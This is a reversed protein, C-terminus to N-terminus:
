SSATEKGEDADGNNLKACADKLAQYVDDPLQREIIEPTLFPQGKDDIVMLAIAHTDMNTAKELDLKALNNGELRMASYLVKEKQAGTLERITFTGVSTEVDQTKLRDQFAKLSEISTIKGM